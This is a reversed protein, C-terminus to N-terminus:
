QEDKKKEIRGKIGLVLFLGFVLALILWLYVLKGTDNPNFIISWVAILFFFGNIILRKTQALRQLIRDKKSDM